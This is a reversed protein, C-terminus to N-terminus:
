QNQHKNLNHNRIHAMLQQQNRKRSYYTCGQYTCSFKTVNQQVPKWRELSESPGKHMVSLLRQHLTKSVVMPDRIETGTVYCKIFRIAIAVASSSCHDVKAQNLFRIARVSIGIWGQLWNQVERDELYSNGGDALVISRDNIRYLAVLVHNGHDILYISDHQDLKDGEELIKIPLADRQERDLYSRIAQIVHDPSKWVSPNVQSTSSSGWTRPITPPGLNNAKKYRALM